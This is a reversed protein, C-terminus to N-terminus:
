GQTDTGCLSTEGHPQLCATCGCAVFMVYSPDICHMNAAWADAVGDRLVDSWTGFCVKHTYMHRFCIRSWRKGM